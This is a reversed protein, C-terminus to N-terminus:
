LKTNERFCARRTYKYPIPFIIGGTSGPGPTPAFLGSHLHTKNIFAPAALLCTFPRALMCERALARARASMYIFIYVVYM